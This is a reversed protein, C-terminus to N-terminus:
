ELGAVVLLDPSINPMFYTEEDAGQLPPAGSGGSCPASSSVYEIGLMEGSRRARPNMQYTTKRNEVVHWSAACASAALIPPSSVAKRPPCTVSLGTGCMWRSGQPMTIMGMRISTRVWETM